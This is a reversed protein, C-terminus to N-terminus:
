RMAPFRSSSPTAYTMSWAGGRAVAEFPLLHEDRLEREGAHAPAQNMGGEALGHGVKHKTTAAVGTALDTQTSGTECRAAAAASGTCLTSPM